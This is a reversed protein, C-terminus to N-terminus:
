RGPSQEVKFNKAFVQIRGGPPILYIDFLYYGDLATPSYKFQSNLLEKKLDSEIECVARSIDDSCESKGDLDVDARLYTADELTLTAPTLERESIGRLELNLVVNDRDEDHRVVAFSRLKSDHWELGNFRECLEDSPTSINM